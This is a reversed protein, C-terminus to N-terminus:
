LDPEVALGARDRQQDHETDAAVPLLHHKRDTVHATFAFGGPPGHELLEQRAAQDLRLQDDDVAALAELRRKRAQPVVHRDLAAGDVLLAVEQSM